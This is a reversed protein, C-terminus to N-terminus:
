LSNYIELLVKADYTSSEINVLEQSVIEDVSEFKAIDLETDLETTQNQPILTIERCKYQEIFTEKIYSAEEYSIPLDITVRLHSKTSTYKEVNELLKSLTITRYVPCEQWNIYEPEPDNIDIIAMGRNYDWSDSYNHPFANGIYHINNNIQRKHFHGSFVYEQHKFNQEKLEGTDPMKVQANMYFNPLEFHGFMVPSKIKEIRRWENNTLWPVFAVEPTVLFDNVITIGTIHKAFEISNVDRRDKHYIDHNGTIFFFQDFSEALRELIHVSYNLTSINITNRNHHYDGCCIGTECGNEKATKIFWEVFEVCDENHTRSNGKHGVHLDTFVAAKKFM